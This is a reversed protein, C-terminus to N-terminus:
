DRATSAPSWLLAAAERDLHLRCDAHQQLISAPVDPTVAGEVAAQVAEAKRRDPVSCFITRAALIRHVSMSLARTPVDALSAFWGEGVQQRRCAEDLPVVHYPATTTFDAPPDNFALHGNEGIGCLLVDFPGTPVLAALRRCEGAPDAEGDLEHFAAPPVPLRGVFRERLYRRFSAAHDPSLGVYEDLHFVTVRAWPIGPQAALESLVEFQSSGTAVVLSVTGHDRAAARIAEAAEGAVHRGLAPRDAHITVHM